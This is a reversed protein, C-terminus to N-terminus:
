SGIGLLIGTYIAASMLFAGLSNPNDKPLEHRTVNMIVGGGIFASVLAVATASLIVWQGILWGLFM